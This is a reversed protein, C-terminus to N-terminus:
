TSFSSIHPSVRGCRTSRKIRLPATRGQDDDDGVTEGAEAAALVDVRGGGPAVLIMQDVLQHRADVLAEAGAAIAIV